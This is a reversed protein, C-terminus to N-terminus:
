DYFNVELSLWSTQSLKLLRHPKLELMKKCKEFGVGRTASKYFHYCVDSTFEELFLPLEKCAAESCLVFLHCVCGLIFLHPLDELLKAKLSNRQGMMVSANDAAFGIMRKLPINHKKLCDLLLAYLGSATHDTVEIMDLFRDRIREGCFYRIIIVLSKTASHGTCEDVIISFYINQLNIENAIAEVNQPAIIESLIQTTKQRGCEFHKAISSDPCVSRILQPLHDMVSLDLNHEAVFMCMKLEGEKVEKKITLSHHEDLLNQVSPLLPEFVKKVHQETIAHSKIHIFGSAIKKFCLRCFTKGNREEIWDKCLPNELRSKCFPVSLKRKKSCSPSDVANVDEDSVDSLSPLSETVAEEPVISPQM